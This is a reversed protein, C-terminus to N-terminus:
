DGTETTASKTGGRVRGNLTGIAHPNLRWDDRIDDINPNSFPDHSELREKWRAWFQKFDKTESMGARSIGEHHVLTAGAAVVCAFGKEGLRLCYDVDNAVLPLMEDFGKVSDFVDRRSLLCAGTVASCERSHSVMPAIQAETGNCFRFLHLAGGGYNVFHVGGHQITRNAYMLMAGVAGVSGQTAIAVMNTLWDRNLAEVDDNMFLLFEGAAHQVGFNNIGSWNFPGDWAIVKFPWRELYRRAEEEDAVNNMVVIVQLNPYDTRMLLSSFCRDVIDLNRLCTPIVVSVMPLIDRDLLQRTVSGALEVEDHV